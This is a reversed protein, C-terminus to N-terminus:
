LFVSIIPNGSAKRRMAELTYIRRLIGKGIGFTSWLHPQLSAEISSAGREILTLMEKMSEVDQQKLVSSIISIRQDIDEHTHGIIFFFLRVEWFYGLAVLSTCYAFMYKNKNERGCNDAQIRLVPPFSGKRSRVDGLVKALSTVM